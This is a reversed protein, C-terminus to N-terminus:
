RSIVSKTSEEKELRGAIREAAARDKFRGVRVRFVGPASDDLFAPYGKSILRQVWEAAAQRSRLASVQIVWAGPQGTTPVKPGAEPATRPAPKAEATVPAAPPPVDEPVTVPPRPEEKPKVPTDGGSLIKPYELEGPPKTGAAVPDTGAPPPIVPSDTGQVTPDPGPQPDGAIPSLTGKPATDRGVVVGLLFVLILVVSTSMLLFVLQKRSLQIEHFGDDTADERLEPV